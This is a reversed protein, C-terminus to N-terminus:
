KPPLNEELFEVALSAIQQFGPSGAAVWDFHGLGPLIELRKTGQANAFLSSSEEAPVLRDDSGHILLIPRPAIQSVFTEPRYEVLAEATELPLDCKMQPFEEYVAELFSRSVPDPLVIELPDVRLSQGTLARQSRDKVLQDRFDDWEWHRRLSSLWREGDGMPEIAVVAGVRQDVAAATIANSGGLSLGLVAIRDADVQSQDSLFTVAARTDNVQEQPILRWRTGESEGFGRYDFILAVYGAANLAKALDPMVMGKLYTYGACLVVAARKESPALGRPNYILGDLRNGESFFSVKQIPQPAAGSQTALAMEIDGKTITGDPGTGQIGSLEVGHEKAMRRAVPTAPIIPGSSSRSSGAAGVATLADEPVSAVAPPQSPSAIDPVAEGPETIVAITQTVPVESGVPFLARALIGSSPAEVVGDIKESEVELLPEGKEVYDGENKLWRTIRGEQMSLGWKPMTVEFAM